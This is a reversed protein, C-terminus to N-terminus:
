LNLDKEFAEIQEPYDLDMGAEAYQPFYPSVDSKFKVKFFKIIDNISLRGLAYKVIFLPSFSIITKVLSKKNELFIRTAEKNDLVTRIRFCNMDAGAFIGEKLKRFSRHANPFRKDFIEKTILGYYVDKNSTIDMKEICHDIIEGTFFPTDSTFQIIMDQDDQTEAFYNMATFVTEVRDGTIKIFEITKKGKFQIDTQDLGIVLIRDISKAEDMAQLLYEIVPKNNLNILAKNTVGAKILLPDDLDKSSSGAMVFASYGM